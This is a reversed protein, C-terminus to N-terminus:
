QAQFHLVHYRVTKTTSMSEVRIMWHCSGGKEFGLFHNLVDEQTSKSSQSTISRHSRVNGATSRTVCSAAATRAIGHRDPHFTSRSCVCYGKLLSPFGQDVVDVRDTHLGFVHSCQLRNLFWFSSWAQVRCTAPITHLLQSAYTYKVADM